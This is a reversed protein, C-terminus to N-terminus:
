LPRRRGIASTASWKRTCGPSRITRESTRSVRRIRGPTRRTAIPADRQEVPGRACRSPLRHLISGSRRLSHQSRSAQARRPRPCRHIERHPVRRMQAARAQGGTELGGACSRIKGQPRALAGASSEPRQTRLPVTRLRQQRFGAEGANRPLEAEGGRPPRDGPPLGPLTAAAIRSRVRSVQRMAASRGSRSAGQEHARAVDARVTRTGGFYGDLSISPANRNSDM